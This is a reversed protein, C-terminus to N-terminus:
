CIQENRALWELFFKSVILLGVSLASKIESVRVVKDLSGSVAASYCIERSYRKLIVIQM